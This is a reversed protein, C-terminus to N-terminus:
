YLTGNAAIWYVGTGEYVGGFAAGNPRIVTITLKARIQYATEKYKKTTVYLYVDYDYLTRTDRVVKSEVSGNEFLYWTESGNQWYFSEVKGTTENWSFKFDEAPSPCNAYHLENSSFTKTQGFSISTCFFLVLLLTKLISNSKLSKM